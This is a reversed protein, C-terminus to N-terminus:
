IILLNQDHVNEDIIIHFKTQKLEEYKKLISQVTLQSVGCDRMIARVGPLRGGDELALLNQYIYKDVREKSKVAM